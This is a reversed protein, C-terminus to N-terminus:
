GTMMHVIRHRRGRTDPLKEMALLVQELAADGIAHIALQRGARHAEFVCAELEEQTYASWGRTEPADSYPERLYASRAGLSGDTVMKVFGLKFFPHPDKWEDCFLFQRLHQLGRPSSGEYVRLPLRGSRALDRFASLVHTKEDGEGMDHSQVSTLGARVMNRSASLIRREVERRSPAPRFPRLLAIGTERVVGTFEGHEDREVGPCEASPDLKALLASNVAAVHYCSRTLLVPRERSIADVTARDPLVPVDFENQDFGNGEVWEGEAWEGEATRKEVYSKGRAVLEAVSKAGALKLQGESHGTLVLHMHSDIFGPLLLRGALDIKEAGFGYASLVEDGGVAVIRGQKESDGEEFAVARAPGQGPVCTRVVGNYM